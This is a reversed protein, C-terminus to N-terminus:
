RRSWWRKLWRAAPFIEGICGRLDGAEKLTVFAGMVTQMGPTVTIGLDRLAPRRGHKFIFRL